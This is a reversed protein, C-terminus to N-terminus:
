ASTPFERNSIFGRQPADHADYNLESIESLNKKSISEDVMPNKLVM